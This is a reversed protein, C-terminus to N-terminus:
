IHRVIKIVQNSGDLGITAGAEQAVGLIMLERLFAGLVQFHGGIGM